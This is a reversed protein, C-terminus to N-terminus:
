PQVPILTDLTTQFAGISMHNEADILSVRYQFDRKDPNLVALRLHIPAGADPPFTLREERHYHHVPDDYRVDVFANRTGAPLLPVFDLELASEFPDDVPLATASTTFPPQPRTEGSTLHHTFQVSYERVSRDDLRVRWHQPPSDPTVSLTRELVHGDGDTVSLHIDTSALLARDMRHAFVTVDLLGVQEYPNITLTRDETTVEPLDYSFTHGQWDGGPNFHYQVGARYRTELLQNPFIEWVRPAHDAAEFHFDGHRFNQPDAPDGYGLSVDISNLGIAAFDVDTEASVKLTRFFPDDLDIEVYHKEPHRLDRVLMSILGQPAFSRQVAESRNYDISVTKLEELHVFKLKLGVQPSGPIEGTPKKPEDKKPEDKKPPVPSQAKTRRLTAHLVVGPAAAAVQGTLEVVRDQPLNDTGNARARTDGLAQGSVTGHNGVVAQAVRLRRESLRQNHALREQDTPPVPQGEHSAHAAATIQRPPILHDAWDRLAAAGHLAGGSPPQSGEYAADQATDSLYSPLVAAFGTEAPKDYDFLLKFTESRTAQAPWTAVVAHQSDEAVDLTLTRDATLARVAGDVTVVPPASGGGFTLVETTGSSAPTHRIAYGDPPPSPTSNDLTLVAAPRAVAPADPPSPTSPSAPTATGAGAAAPTAGAGGTPTGTAADPVGLIKPLGGNGAEPADAPPTLTPEFWTHLLQDKFFDLAWKEKDSKDEAGTYNIVDIVLAGEQQLKQLNAEISAKFFYYQGTLSASFSDYVRKLDAKLHVKLAPRLASFKLNYIVGIPAAGQQYAKQLITSGEQSLTLSFLADNDGSLSPVSAGLISEVANFAGAPAPQAAAGGSGQLNLAVCQVTGDDLPVPALRAAGRTLGALQAMIKNETVPLLKLNVQLQLFGGGRAGASVAAPKYKLFTFRGEGTEDQALHVAGPLYWFQNPDANDGMVTVDDVTFTNKGLEMM